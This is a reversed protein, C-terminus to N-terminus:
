GFPKDQDKHFLWKGEVFHPFFSLRPCDWCEGYEMRPPDQLVADRLDPLCLCPNIIRYHLKEAGKCSTEGWSPYQPSISAIELPQKKSSLQNSDTGLQTTPVDCTGTGTVVEVLCQPFHRRM